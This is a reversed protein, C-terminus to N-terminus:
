FSSKEQRASTLLENSIQWSFSYILNRQQCLRSSKDTHSIKNINPWFNISKTHAPCGTRTSDLLLLFLPLALILGGDTLAVINEHNQKNIKSASGRSPDGGGGERRRGGGGQLIKANNTQLSYLDLTCEVGTVIACQFVCM